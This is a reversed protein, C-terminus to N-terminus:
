PLAPTGWKRQLYQRTRLIETATLQANVIVLERINGPIGLNQINLNGLTVEWSATDQSNGSAAFTGTTAVGNVALLNTGVSWNAAIELLNVDGNSATNIITAADADLRRFSGSFESASNNRSQLRMRGGSDGARSFTVVVHTVNGATHNTDQAVAFIYGYGRNRFVDAMTSTGNMFQSSGNFTLGTAPNTFVPQNALTSQDWFVAPNHRSLWRRVTQGNTAPVDPGVSTLVTSSDSADYWAALGPLSLPSFGVSKGIAYPGFNGRLLQSM